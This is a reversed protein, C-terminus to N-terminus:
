IKFIPNNVYSNIKLNKFIKYTYLIYSSFTILHRIHLSVDFLFINLSTTVKFTCCKKKKKSFFTVFFM